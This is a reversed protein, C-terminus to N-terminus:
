QDRVTARELEGLRETCIMEVLRLLHETRELLWSLAEERDQGDALGRLDKLNHSAPSYNPLVLLLAAYAQEISQHLLFAAEKM